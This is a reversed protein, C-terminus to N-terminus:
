EAENQTTDAATRETERVTLAARLSAAQTMLLGIQTQAQVKQEVLQGQASDVAGIANILSQRLGAQVKQSAELEEHLCQAEAETADARDRDAAGGAQMRYVLRLFQSKEMSTRMLGQSFFSIVLGDSQFYSGRLSSLFLALCLLDVQVRTMVEVTM